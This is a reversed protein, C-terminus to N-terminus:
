IGLKRVFAELIDVTGEVGVMASDISLDYTSCLGWKSDSYYNYYNARNKDNRLCEDEAKAQPVEYVEVARKVRDKLPAHIFISVLDPNDKLIHDACRGIIVCSGKEAISKITNSQIIFLQDNLPLQEFGAVGASASYHGIGLSYFLSSSAKEDAKKFLSESYGSNKAALALLEKDYFPVGLREALLRGIKRGGSGFQRGITIVIKRGM